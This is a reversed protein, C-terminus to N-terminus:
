IVLVEGQGHGHPYTHTHIPTHTHTHIAAHRAAAVNNGTRTQMNSQIVVGFSQCAIGRWALGPGVMGPGALGPWYYHSESEFCVGGSMPWLNFGITRPWLASQEEIKAAM